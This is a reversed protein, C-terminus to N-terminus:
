IKFTCLMRLECGRPKSGIAELKLKKRVSGETSFSMEVPPCALARRVLIILGQMRKKSVEPEWM